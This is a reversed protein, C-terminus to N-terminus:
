WRRDKKCVSTAIVSAKSSAYSMWGPRPTMGSTSAVNLIKGGSEKMKKSCERILVFPAVVNVKYTLEFSEISTTFLPQPDTYGAINYLAVIDGYDNEIADIVNVIEHVEVLEIPYITVHPSNKAGMERVTEEISAINRGLLAYNTYYRRNFAEIAVARGIGSGAGTIVCTSMRNEGELFKMM